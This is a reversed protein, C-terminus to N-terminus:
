CESLTAENDKTTSPETEEDCNDESFIVDMVGDDDGDGAETYVDYLEGELLMLGNMEDVTSSAPVDEESKLVARSDDEMKLRYVEGVYMSSAVDNRKSVDEKGEDTISVDVDCWM